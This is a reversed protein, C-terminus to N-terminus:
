APLLDAYSAIRRDRRTRAITRDISHLIAPTRADGPHAAVRVVRLPALGHRAIAAFALSSAQRAPSRSAWTIVPGRCLTADDSPRWVRFHDEAFAFGTDRLAQRAGDGYLWAPAVFGHVARGTVDELLARGDCLRGCAEDRSMGLFEGEGATLHRAKFGARWGAHASHDRHSWGHLLMEVGEDAWRRLRARFRPAGALPAADWFDPVVLMAFRPAGLLAHFRYALADIASEFRPSVDHISALLLKAPPAAPRM